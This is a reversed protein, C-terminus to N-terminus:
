ERASSRPTQSPTTFLSLSSASSRVDVAASWPRDSRRAVANVASDERAIERFQEIMDAPRAGRDGAARHASANRHGHRAQERSSDPGEAEDVRGGPVALLAGRLPAGTRRVRARLTQGGEDAELDLAPEAVAKAAVM